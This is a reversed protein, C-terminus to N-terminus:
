IQQGLLVSFEICQALSMQCVGRALRSGMPQNDPEPSRWGTAARTGGVRSPSRGLAPFMALQCVNVWDIVPNIRGM